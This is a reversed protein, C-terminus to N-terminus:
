SPPYMGEPSIHVLHLLLAACAPTCTCHHTPGFLLGRIGALLFCALPGSPYKANEVKLESHTSKDSLLTFVDIIAVVKSYFDNFSALNHKTNGSGAACLIAEFIVHSAFMKTPQSPEEFLRAFKILMNDAFM